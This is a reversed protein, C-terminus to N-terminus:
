DNNAERVKFCDYLTNYCTNEYKTNPFKVWIEDGDEWAPRSMKGITGIPPFYDDGTDFPGEPNNEKNPKKVYKVELSTNYVDSFKVDRWEPKGGIQFPRGKTAREYGSKYSLAVMRCVDLGSEIGNDETIFGNKLFKPALMKYIDVDKAEAETLNVYESTEEDDDHCSCSSCDMNCKHEEDELEKEGEEIIEKILRVLWKHNNMAHAAFYDAPAFEDRSLIITCEEPLQHEEEKEFCDPSFQVNYDDDMQGTIIGISGLIPYLDSLPGTALEESTFQVFTM